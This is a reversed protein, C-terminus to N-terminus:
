ILAAVQELGMARALRRVEQKQDERLSMILPGAAWYLRQAADASLAIRPKGATQKHAALQRAIERLEAEVPAWYREQEPSLNLSAKIRAIHAPTFNGNRDIREVPLAKAVPVAHASHISGTMAVDASSAADTTSTGDLPESLALRLPPGSPTGLPRPSLLAADVVAADAFTPAAAAPAAATAPETAATSMAPSPAKMAVTVGGIDDDTADASSFGFGALGVADAVAVAAALAAL